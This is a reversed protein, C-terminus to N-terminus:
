YEEGSDYYGYDEDTGLGASTMGSDFDGDMADDFYWDDEDIIADITERVFDVSVNLVHAIQNETMGNYYMTSIEDYLESMASM